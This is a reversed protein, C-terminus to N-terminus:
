SSYNPLFMPVLTVVSLRWLGSSSPCKWFRTRHFSSFRWLFRTWFRPFFPIVPSGWDALSSTVFYSLKARKPLLFKNMWHLTDVAQLFFDLQRMSELWTPQLKLSGSFLPRLFLDQNSQQLLIKSMLTSMESKRRKQDLRGMKVSGPGALLLLPTAEQPNLLRMIKFKRSSPRFALLLWSKLRWLDPLAKLAPWRISLFVFIFDLVVKWLYFYAFYFEHTQIMFLFFFM